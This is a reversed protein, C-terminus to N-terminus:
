DGFFSSSRTRSWQNVWRAGLILSNRNTYGESWVKTSCAVVVRNTCMLPDAPNSTLRVGKHMSYIHVKRADSGWQRITFATYFV